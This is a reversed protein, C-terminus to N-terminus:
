NETPTKELNDIVILDIPGKKSELKLGLQEQLATTLSPGNSDSAPAAGEGGEPGHGPPMGGMMGPMRMSEDPAFDLTFDYNATLGTQDVVPRGLQNGLMEAIQTVPQKSAQLRMRGNNVMMMMGGRGGGFGGKPMQPMGDKGMKIQPEGANPGPGAGAPPPGGALDQVTEDKPTEKMKLGGKAVVLAYIPLEKTERHIKLKFREALLNQLMVQFQEKTAGKPIKAVIDYRESDLWNPGSLQYGKVNYALRLVNKLTVNSYSIQGPDPSGPGGDMRVIIRGGMIPAAPKVSAVDFTPSGEGSQACAMGALAALLGACNLCRRM